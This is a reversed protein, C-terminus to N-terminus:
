FFNLIVGIFKQITLKISGLDPNIMSLKPYLKKLDIFTQVSGKGYSVSGVIVARQHDQLAAAVIEAASAAYFNIMVVLPGAYVVEKDTDRYVQVNDRRDKVQVIPSKKLFLGALEVADLLAGGENNRLDM